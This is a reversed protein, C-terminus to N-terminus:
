PLTPKLDTPLFPLTHSSAPVSGDFTSLHHYVCKFELASIAEKPFQVLAHDSAYRTAMAYAPRSVLIADLRQQDVEGEAELYEKDRNYTLRLNRAISEYINFAKGYYAFRNSHHQKLLPAGPDIWESKRGDAFTCRYLFQQSYTPPEPAFVDWDQHFVPSIYRHSLASVYKIQWEDPM